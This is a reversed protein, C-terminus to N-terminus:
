ATLYSTYATLAPSQGGAPTFTGTTTHSSPATPSVSNPHPLPVPSGSGQISNPNPNTLFKILVLPSATNIIENKQHLDKWRKLHRYKM